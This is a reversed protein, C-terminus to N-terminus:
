KGAGKTCSMALGSGEGTLDVGRWCGFGGVDDDEIGIWFVNVEDLRGHRDVNGVLVVRLDNMRAAGDDDGGGTLLARADVEEVAETHPMAGAILLFEEAVALENEIRRVEAM